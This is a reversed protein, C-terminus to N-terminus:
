KRFSSPTDGTVKKFYNHFYTPYEFGLSYAIESVTWDTYQLLAKAETIIRETIHETTTKATVSKVSRNLHNVHLNLATAYNQATLLKLPEEPSLVPFQKELLDLFVSTIRSAANKYEIFKESPQMKLVEHFILEIANRIIDDRHQYESVYENLMKKFLVNLYDRQEENLSFVPTGGIKFLPLHQLNDSNLNPKFFEQTFFCTYGVQNKTIVEWSYPVLSSGFFLSIGDLHISKDAYSIINEGTILCIKFFDKRSYVKVPNFKEGIQYVTFGNLKLASKFDKISREKKEKM